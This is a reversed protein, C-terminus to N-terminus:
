GISALDDDDADDPLSVPRPAAARRLRDLIALGLGHRPMTMAAIGRLGRRRGESDLFRLGAFLRAAAEELDGRDSLSWTLGAGPLPPGFALLAEDPRVAAANLRVPLDPAYHSAMLGPAIPRKSGHDDAHRVPGCVATLQELTVGGPRLLIPAGRSLDLVTSEVGVPCPGSDLVADIRGGLGRLVHFADSPSVSGSPNASPAAVPIDLQSLMAQVTEGRPVRLALTPLGAAALDCVTADARRPLVLTLPGPWFAQALLRALTNEEGQRFAAEASAVHNILPNFRPRNKAAYIRAVAADSTADAGLGYVTETGFAVLHGTRLLTAARAIGAADAKLLETM